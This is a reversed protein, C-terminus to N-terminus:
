RFTTEKPKVASLVDKEELAAQKEEFSGNHVSNDKDAWDVASTVQLVREDSELLSVSPQLNLLKNRRVGLESQVKNKIFSIVLEDFM